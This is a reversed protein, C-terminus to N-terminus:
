DTHLRPHGEDLAVENRGRNDRDGLRFRVRHLTGWRTTSDEPWNGPIGRGRM